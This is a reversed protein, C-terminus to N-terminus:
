CCRLYSLGTVWIRPSDFWMLVMTLVMTLVTTLVTTMLTTMLTTM